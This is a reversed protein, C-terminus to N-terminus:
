KVREILAGLMSLLSVVEKELREESFTPIGQDEKRDFHLITNGWVWLRCFLTAEVGTPLDLSGNEIRRKLDKGKTKYHVSLVAERIARMLAVAAYPAGYIFADHAQQLYKLLRSSM